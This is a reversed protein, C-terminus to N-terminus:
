ETGVMYKMPAADANYDLCTGGCIKPKPGDKGASDTLMLVEIPESTKKMDWWILRGDTSTSVVETGQKQPTFWATGYVPDHHSKELVTTDFPKVVGSPHGKRVDFFSLAGNYQGGVV